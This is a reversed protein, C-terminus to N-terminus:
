VKETYEIKVTDILYHKSLSDPNNSLGYFYLNSQRNKYVGIYATITQPEKCEKWNTFKSPPELVPYYNNGQPNVRTLVAYNEKTIYECTYVVLSDFFRYKKGVEFM